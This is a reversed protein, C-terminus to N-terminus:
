PRQPHQRDIPIISVDPVSSADPELPVNMGTMWGGDRPWANATAVIKGDIAIALPGPDEEVGELTAQFYAPVGGLALGDPDFGSGVLPKFPIKARSGLVSIPKGILDPHGGLSYLGNGLYRNRFRIAERRRREVQDGSLDILNGASDVAHIVGPLPRSEGLLSTGTARPSPDLGLVDLITPTVDRIDAAADTVHGRKQGPYKIFLPIPLLWGASKASVTRRATGPKFSAGHDAVLAFLTEDWTGERKLHNILLGVLHDTYMAQATLQQLNKAAENQNSPFAVGQATESDLLGRSAYVTGDQLYQYEAHPLLSHIVDVTKPGTPMGSVFEKFIQDREDGLAPHPKGFADAIAEAGREFVRGPTMEVNLNRGFLDSVTDPFHVPIGALLLRSLRTGMSEPRDCLDTEPQSSYSDYGAREAVSCLSDPYAPYGPPTPEGFTTEHKPDEGTLISPVASLTHDARTTAQRYWTAKRELRAFNPFDRADIQGHDNMMTALPFEDLIVLVVPTESSTSEAAAGAKGPLWASSIPYSFLFLAITVPTAVALIGAFNRGFSSKLRLGAVLVATLIGLPYSLFGPQLAGWVILGALLALIVAHTVSCAKRSHLRALTEPLTLVLPVLLSLIAIFVILDLRRIGLSTLAEPGSTIRQYVPWAIALAWLGALEAWGRLFSPSGDSTTPSAHSV